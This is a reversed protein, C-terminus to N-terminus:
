LLVGSLGEIAHSIKQELEQWEANPVSGSVIGAGAFLFARDDEVIASRIAVAMETYDQGIIGVPSAYWGRSFPELERVLPLVSERPTGGVAPTPHLSSIIESLSVDHMLRGSIRSYIHSINSLEFTSREETPNIAECLTEIRKTIDDLVYQHELLNKATFLSGNEARYSERHIDGRATTGSIAESIINEGEIKFLREPTVGVFAKGSRPELLFAFCNKNKKKLRSLLTFPNENGSFTM